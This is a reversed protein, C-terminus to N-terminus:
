NFATKIGGLYCAEQHIPGIFSVTEEVSEAGVLTAVSLYLRRWGSLPMHFRDRRTRDSRASQGNWCGVTSKSRCL